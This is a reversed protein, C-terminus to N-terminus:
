PSFLFCGHFDAPIECGTEFEVSAVDCFTKADIVVLALRQEDAVNVLSSLVVGDDEDEGGPRPVFVPESPVWGPREWRLWLGTDVDLKSLFVQDERGEVQSVMYVHKYRRGNYLDNIRPMDGRLEAHSFCREPKVVVPSADSGSDSPRLVFRRVQAFRTPTDQDAREFHMSKIFAGDEFACLDVVIERGDNQEFANVHHFVFFPATEIVTPQIAGTDRDVLHFRVNTNPDFSMCSVFGQAGMPKSCVLRPLSIVMSQELLVIWKETVAFSHIYSPYLRSRMAVEAIVQGGELNSCSVSGGDKKPFRVIVYKPRPPTFRSGILYTYGGYDLPHATITHVAVVDRLDTRDLTDLTDPDIRHLFPSETMAYLQEGGFPTVNVLANDTFDELSFFSVFREFATACPDPFAATGFESVVIRGARQNRRLTESRLFRHRYWARGDRLTFERLLALGDFAHRYRDAGVSAQGPGNRILNGRLWEPIIGSVVGEVPEEFEKTSTRSYLGSFSFDSRVAEKPVDEM